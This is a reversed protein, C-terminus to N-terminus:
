LEIAPDDYHRQGSPDYAPNNKGPANLYEGNENQQTRPSFRPVIPDPKKEITSIMAQLEEKSPKRDQPAQLKEIEAQLNEIETIQAQIIKQLGKEKKEQETEKKEPKTGKRDAYRNLYFILSELVETKDKILGLALNCGNCLWGRFQNTEHDHDLVIRSGSGCSECNSSKEKPVGLIKRGGYRHFSVKCSASCFSNREFEEKCYDCLHLM